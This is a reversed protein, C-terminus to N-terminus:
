ASLPGTALKCLPEDFDAGRRAGPGRCRVFVGIAVENEHMPGSGKRTDPTRSCAMLAFGIPNCTM